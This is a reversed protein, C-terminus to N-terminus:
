FKMRSQFKETFIREVDASQVKEIAKEIFNHPKIGPHRWGQSNMGVTRFKTGGGDKMPIIRSLGSGLFGPKMDFPSSGSEVFTSLGGKTPNEKLTIDIDTGDVDVRLDELYTSLTEELKNAALRRVEWEVEEAIEQMSEKAVEEMDVAISDWDPADFEVSRILM